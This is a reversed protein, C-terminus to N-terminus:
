AKEWDTVERQHKGDVSVFRVCVYSHIRIPAL